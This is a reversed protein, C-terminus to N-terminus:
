ESIVRDNISYLRSVSFADYFLVVLSTIDYLIQSSVGPSCVKSGHSLATLKTAMYFMTIVNAAGNAGHYTNNLGTEATV